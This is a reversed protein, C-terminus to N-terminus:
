GAVTSIAVSKWPQKERKQFQLSPVLGCLAGCKTLSKFLKQNVSFGVILFWPMAKPIECFFETVTECPVDVAM